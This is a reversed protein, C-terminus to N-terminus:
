GTCPRIPRALHLTAPRLARQWLARARAALWSAADRMAERRLEIAERKARDYLACRQAPTLRNLYCTSDM